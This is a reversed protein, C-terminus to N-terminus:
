QVKLGRVFNTVKLLSTVKQGVKVPALSPSPLPNHEELDVTDIGNANEWGTLFRVLFYSM